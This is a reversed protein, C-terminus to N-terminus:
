SRGTLRRLWARFRATQGDTYENSLRLTEEGLDGGHLISDLAQLAREEQAEARRMREDDDM